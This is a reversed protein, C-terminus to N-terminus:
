QAQDSQDVSALLTNELNQPLDDTTAVSAAPNFAAWAGLLLTVALCSVAARWLGSVWSVSNGPAARSAILATVRKEFAYPVQDGPVDTRAAAMLKTQLEALNM